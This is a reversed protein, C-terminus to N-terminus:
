PKKEPSDTERLDLNYFIAAQLTHNREAKIGDSKIVYQNMYGLQLSFKANFRWGLAAYLRNQDLVNKAINQGLGLFVEDYLSLFLTNDAMEKKNIPINAMIRYRVRN